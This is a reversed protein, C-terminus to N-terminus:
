GDSPVNNMIVWTKKTIDYYFESGLATYVTCNPAHKCLILLIVYHLGLLIITLGLVISLRCTTDHSNHIYLDKLRM